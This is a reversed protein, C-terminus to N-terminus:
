WIPQYASNAVWAPNAGTNFLSPPQGVPRGVVSVVSWTHLDQNFSTAKNFMFGMDTVSSTTWSGIPQNFASADTFMGRMSTVNSTNWGGIAQNFASAGNFMSGMDTVSSTTWSGIAQNFASAGDFMRSMDTVKSTNWSAISQNFAEAAEFMASMDTVNSTDWGGIPQNFAKADSFMLSMDTVKSTNWAGIPQDFPTVYFMQNMDTVNSTDWDGIPQNFASGAFMEGMDTVNSTDWDGIPQNFSSYDGFLANMDTVHSTCFRLTGANLSDLNASNFIGNVGEGDEVVLYENGSSTFRDGVAKDLCTVTSSAISVTVIYNNTASGNTVTYTLPNTFDNSTSGSVQTTSGISVTAGNSATFTSVLSTTNTGSPLTVAINNGTIIGSESNISYATILAEQASNNGNVIVVFPELITIEGNQDSIAEPTINYTGNLANPSVSVVVKCSSSKGTGATGVECLLPNISIGNADFGTLSHGVAAQAIAGVKASSLHMTYSTNPQGGTISITANQPTSETVAIDTRDVYVASGNPLTGLKVASDAPNQCSGSGCATM